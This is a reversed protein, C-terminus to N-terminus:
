VFRYSHKFIPKLKLSKCNLSFGKCERKISDNNKLNYLLNQLISNSLVRDYSKFMNYFYEINFGNFYFSLDNIYKKIMLNKNIQERLKFPKLTLYFIINKEIKYLEM